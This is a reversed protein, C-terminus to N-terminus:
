AVTVIRWRADRDADIRRCTSGLKKAFTAQVREDLAAHIDNTVMPDAGKVALRM